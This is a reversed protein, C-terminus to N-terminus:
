AAKGKGGGSAREYAALQDEFSAGKPVSRVARLNGESMSYGARALSDLVIRDEPTIATRDGADGVSRNTGLFNPPGQRKKAAEAAAKRHADRRQDLTQQLSASGVLASVAMRLANPDAQVKPDVRAFSSELHPRIVENFTGPGYSNDIRQQEAALISEQVVRTPGAILPQVEAMVQQRIRDALAAEYADPDAVFAELKAEKTTPAAPAAPQGTRTLHDMVQNLRQEYGSLRQETAQVFPQMARALITGFQDAAASPLGGPSSSHDGNTPDQPGSGAGDGGGDGTQAGVDTAAFSLPSDDVAM